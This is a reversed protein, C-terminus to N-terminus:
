LQSKAPTTEIQILKANMPPSQFPANLRGRQGEAADPHVSGSNSCSRRIKPTRHADPLSEEAGLPTSGDASRPRGVDPVRHLPRHHVPSVATVPGNYTQAALLPTAAPLFWVSRTSFHCDHRSRTPPTPLPSRALRPMGGRGRGFIRGGLTSHRTIQILGSRLHLMLNRSWSMVILSSPLSRIWRTASSARPQSSRGSVVPRVSASPLCIKFCTCCTTM